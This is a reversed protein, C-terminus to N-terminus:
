QVSDDVGGRDADATVTEVLGDGVVDAAVVADQDALRRGFADLVVDAGRERALLHELDRDLAAIEGFAHRAAKREVAVLDEFRQLLGQLANDPRDLFSQLLSRRFEAGVDGFAADHQRAAARQEAVDVLQQHLLRAQGDDDGVVRHGADGAAAAAHDLQDVLVPWRYESQLHVGRGFGGKSCRIAITAERDLVVVEALIGASPARKRSSMKILM